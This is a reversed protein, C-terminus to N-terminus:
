KNFASCAFPSDFVIYTLVDLKSLSRHDPALLNECLSCNKSYNKNSKKSNINAARKMWGGHTTPSRRRRRSSSRSSSSSSGDVFGRAWGSV